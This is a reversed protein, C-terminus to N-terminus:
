FRLCLLIGREIKGVSLRKNKEKRWMLKMALLSAIVAVFSLGNLLFCVGEGVAAILVGAFSPGILRAGNNM